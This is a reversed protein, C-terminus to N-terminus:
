STKSPRGGGTITRSRDSPKNEVAIFGWSIWSFSPRVLIRSRLQYTWGDQAVVPSPSYSPSVHSVEFMLVHSQHPKRNTRKWEKGHWWRPSRHIRALEDSRKYIIRRHKQNKLKKYMFAPQTFQKRFNVQLHVCKDQLNDYKSYGHSSSSSTPRYFHKDLIILKM